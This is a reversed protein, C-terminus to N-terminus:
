SGGVDLRVVGCTEPVYGENCWKFCGQIVANAFHLVESLGVIRLEDFPVVSWDIGKEVDVSL